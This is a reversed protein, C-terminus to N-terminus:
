EFVLGAQTNPQSEPHHHTIVKGYQRLLATIYSDQQELHHTKASVQQALKKVLVTDAQLQAVHRELKILLEKDKKYLDTMRRAADIWGEQTKQNHDVLNCIRVLEKEYQNVRLLQKSVTTRLEFADTDLETIREGQRIRESYHEDNSKKLADIEASLRSQILCVIVLLLALGSVICYHYTKM